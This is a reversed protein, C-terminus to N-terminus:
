SGKARFEEIKLMDNIYREVRKFGRRNMQTLSLVIGILERGFEEEMEKIGPQVEAVEKGEAVPPSSKLNFVQSWFDEESIYIFVRPYVRFTSSLLLIKEATLNPNESSEIKQVAAKQVGLVEGLEQQTMRKSQRLMKIRKGIHNM